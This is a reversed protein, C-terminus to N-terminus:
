WSNEYGVVRINTLGSTNSGQANSTLLSVGFWGRKTYTHTTNPNSTVNTWTTDGWSWNWSTPTNTSTDTVSLANPIRYLTKTATFSSVPPSGTLTYEITMYPPTASAASYYSLQTYNSRSWTLTGNDTDLSHTVMYAFLGTKNIKTLGASNLTYNLNTGSGWSSYPFDTAMRTFTTKNYDGAAYASYNGPTFDVISANGTGLANGYQPTMRLTVIASDITSADPIDSGNFSFGARYHITYVDPNNSTVAQTQALIYQASSLPCVVGEGVGARIVYWAGDTSRYMRGDVSPSSIITTGASVVAPILFIILIVFISTKYKM